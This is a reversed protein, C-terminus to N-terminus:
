RLILSRWVAGVFIVAGSFMDSASFHRLQVFPSCRRTQWVFYRSNMSASRLSLFIRLRMGGVGQTSGASVSM